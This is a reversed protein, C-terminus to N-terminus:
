PLKIIKKAINGIRIFYIGPPTLVGRTDRGDWRFWYFGPAFVDYTKHFIERGLVNYIRIQVPSRQPAYFKIKVLEGREAPNPHPPYLTFTAPFSRMAHVGVVDGPNRVYIDDVYLSFRKSKSTSLRLGTWFVPQHIQLHLQGAEDFLSDQGAKYSLVQWGPLLPVPSTALPNGAGDVFTLQAVTESGGGFLSLSAVAGSDVVVDRAAFSLMLQAPLTHFLPRVFLAGPAAFYRTQRIEVILSDAILNQTEPHVSPDIFPVDGGNFVSLTEYTGEERETSFTWRVEQLLPTGELNTIGKYVIVTYRADARLPETPILHLVSFSDAVAYDLRLPISRTRNSTVLLTKRFAVSQTDIPQNFHVRIVDRVYVDPTTKTPYIETIMPIATDEPATRFTLTYDGGPIGDGDGDFLHGHLDRATGAITVRYPTAFDLRYDPEFTFIRKQSDAYLTGAVAPTLEFAQRVSAIDMPESFKFFIKSFPGVGNEGDRPKTAIMTPPVNPVMFVDFAKFTHPQIKIEAYSTDYGDASIQLRYNGPALAPFVYLGNNWSDTIYVTDIPLLRVRAGNIPKRSAQDRVIGSLTGTPMTGAEFYDLIALHLALAELRNFDPNRLKREEEYHDHFTAESLEGPMQLDNLVGLNFGLASRDGRVRWDSTRLAQWIREAMKASMVDAQGPWQPRGSHLEEYLVLTYRYQNQAGTIANHHISHFWTVGFTNAMAERQSLTPNEDDTTRTLLVTDINAQKLWEKLFLAVRLNVEAERLGTPGQNVTNKGHGPDICISIGSLDQAIGTSVVFELLVSIWILALCRKM